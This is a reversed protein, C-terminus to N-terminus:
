STKKKKKKKKKGGGAKAKSPKPKVTKRTTPIDIKKDFPSKGARARSKYWALQGSDFNSDKVEKKVTKIIDDDSPIRKKSLERVVISSATVKKDKKKSGM